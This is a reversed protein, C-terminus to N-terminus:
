AYGDVEQHCCGHWALCRYPCLHLNWIVSFLQKMSAIGTFVEAFAGVGIRKGFTVEKVDVEGDIMQNEVVKPKSPTADESSVNSPFGDTSDPKVNRIYVFSNM